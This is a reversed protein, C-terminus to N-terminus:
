GPYTSGAPAQIRLVREDAAIPRGGDRNSTTLWLAGDPAAVVTRLRGYVGKLYVSFKGVSVVTGAVNLPAGLLALGDLSTVYLTGNEVACGGPTAYAAPLYALPERSAPAAHPWGYDSGAVIRDVGAQGDLGRPEVAMLLNRQSDLCMGAFARLGSAYVPSGTTPNGAAPRGIDTVRLVKGGLSGSAQALTATGADGTGIYLSGDTGFRIRGANDAPGRPIGTVVPTVAGGLAFEVVRNDKATSIYAFVLNDQPYNPSLALDLLGGGGSTDLGTLTQVTPTPQHPQPHVLVIRGTTREGVLANGDPLLAIADPATLKTAVVAPDDKSGTSGSSSGPSPTADSPRVPVGENPVARPQGGEGQFSPAPVWTPVGARAGAGCAALLLSAGLLAATRARSM